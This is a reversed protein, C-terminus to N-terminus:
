ALRAELSKMLPAFSLRQRTVRQALEDATERSGHSLLERIMWPATKPNSWWSAGFLGVLADSLVSRFQQARLYAAVYLAYDVDVFADEPRHAFGTANSMHSIYRDPLDEWAVTGSYLEMEYLLRGCNRRVHYLEEIARSRSFENSRTGVKTYQRLWGDDHLLHDLLFALTESV